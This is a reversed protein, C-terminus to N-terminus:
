NLREIRGQGDPFLQKFEKRLSAKSRGTEAAMIACWMIEGVFIVKYQPAYSNWFESLISAM